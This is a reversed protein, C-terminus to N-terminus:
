TNAVIQLRALLKDVSEQKALRWTTCSVSPFCCDVLFFFVLTSEVKVQVKTFADSSSDLASHTGFLPLVRRRVKTGRACCCHDIKRQPLRRGNPLRAIRELGLAHVPAHHLGHLWRPSADKSHHSSHCPCTSCNEVARVSAPLRELLGADAVREAHSGRGQNDAGKNLHDVHRENAGGDHQLVWCRCLSRHQLHGLVNDLCAAEKAQPM